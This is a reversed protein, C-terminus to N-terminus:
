KTKHFKRVLRGSKRFQRFTYYDSGIRVGEVTFEEGTMPTFLIKDEEIRIGFYYRMLLEIYSSHFYDMTVSFPTGDSPRYHEVVLPM